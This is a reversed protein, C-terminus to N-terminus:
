KPVELCNSHVASGYRRLGRVHVQHTAHHNSLVMSPHLWPDRRVPDGFIWVHPHVTAVVPVDDVMRVVCVFPPAAASRKQAGVEETRIGSLSPVEQRLCDLWVTLLWYGLGAVGVM